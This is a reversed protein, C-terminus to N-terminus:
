QTTCTRLMFKQILRNTHSYFDWKSDWVQLHQEANLRRPLREHQKGEDRKCCTSFWPLPSFAHAPQTPHFSHSWSYSTLHWHPYPSLCLWFESCPVPVSHSFVAFVWPIWPSPLSCGVPNANELWSWKFRWACLSQQCSVWVVLVAIVDKCM